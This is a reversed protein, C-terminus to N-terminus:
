GSYLHICKGLFDREKWNKWVKAFTLRLTIQYFNRPDIMSLWYCAHAVISLSLRQKAHTYPLLSPTESLFIPPDLQMQLFHMISNEEAAGKKKAAKM